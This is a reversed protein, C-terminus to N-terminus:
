QEEEAHFDFCDVSEGEDEKSCIKWQAIEIAEEESTAQIGTIEYQEIWRVTFIRVRKEETVNNVSNQEHNVMKM